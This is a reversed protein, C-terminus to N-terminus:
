TFTSSFLADKISAISPIRYTSSSIPEVPTPIIFYNMCLYFRSVRFVSSLYFYSDHFFEESVLPQTSLFPRKKYNISTPSSFSNKGLYFSFLHFLINNHLHQISMTPSFLSSSAGTSSAGAFINLKSPKNKYSAVSQFPKMVTESM